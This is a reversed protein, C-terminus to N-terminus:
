VIHDYEWVNFHPSLGVNRPTPINGSCVRVSIAETRGYDKAMVGAVLLFGGM